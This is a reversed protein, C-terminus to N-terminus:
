LFVKLKPMIDLKWIWGYEWSPSNKLDIGHAAWTATKTSFDRNGSPRWCVSDPIQNSPIPTVLILQLSVDDLLETLKLVDWEQAETIFHSVMLSPDIQSIDSINLLSILNENACWNDLWFHIKTGDVVKWRIGKRFQHRNRFICKWAWSDCKACEVEFFFDDVSYKAKKQDVWLSQGHFLKWILKGLFASNVAAMQRLGLGGAHKPRCVKDWSVMPLGKNDGSNQWFFNRSIRDIQSTTASPLQFCQMTHAPMSEINAQILAV